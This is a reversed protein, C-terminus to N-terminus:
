KKNIVIYIIGGQYYLKISDLAFINKDLLFLEEISFEKSIQDFLAKEKEYSDIITIKNDDLVKYIYDVQEPSADYEALRNCLYDSTISKKSGSLAIISKIVDDLYEQSISM